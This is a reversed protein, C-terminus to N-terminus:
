SDTMVPGWIDVLSDTRPAEEVGGVLGEQAYPSASGNTYLKHSHPLVYTGAEESTGLAHSSSVRFSLPKPGVFRPAVRVSQVLETPSTWWMSRGQRRLFVQQDRGVRGLHMGSCYESKMFATNHWTRQRVGRRRDRSGRRSYFVLQVRVTRASV